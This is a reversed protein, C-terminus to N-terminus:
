IELLRTFNEPETSVTQLKKLNENLSM